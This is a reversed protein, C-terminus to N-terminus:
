EGIQMGQKMKMEHILRSLNEINNTLAPLFQKFAKELGGIRAQLEELHNEIENLRADYDANVPAAPLPQKSKIQVKMENIQQEMQTILKQLKEWKEEVIGEIMEEIVVDASVSQEQFPLETTQIDYNQPQEHPYVDEFRPAQTSTEEMQSEVAGVKVTQMMIKEIDNYSFGRSKLEKIIDRESLVAIPKEKETVVLISVSKSTALRASEKISSDPSITIVEKTMMNKARIM